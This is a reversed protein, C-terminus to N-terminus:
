HLCLDICFLELAFSCACVEPVLSCAINMGNCGCHVQTRSRVQNFVKKMVPCEYEGDANKHFTLPILDSLELPEGSVPHAHFKSIYPVINTVDFVTGDATCVPDEFNTFSLSCCYFPLPQKPAHQKEKYGGGSRKGNRPPLSSATRRISSREWAQECHACSESLLM